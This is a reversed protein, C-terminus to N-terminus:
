KKDTHNRYAHSHNKASDFQGTRPNNPKLLCMLQQQRSKEETKQVAQLQM